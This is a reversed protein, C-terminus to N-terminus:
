VDKLHVKEILQRFKPELDCTHIASVPWALLVYPSPRKGLEAVDYVYIGKAATQRVEAEFQRWIRKCRTAKRGRKLADSLMVNSRCSLVDMVYKGVDDLDKMELDASDPFAGWGGMSFRAVAGSGDTAFWDLDRTTQDLLSISM